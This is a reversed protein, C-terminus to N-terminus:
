HEESEEGREQRRRLGTGERLLPDEEITAELRQSADEGVPRGRRRVHEEDAVQGLPCPEGAHLDLRPGRDLRSRAALHHQVQRGEPAVLLDIPEELLHGHGM